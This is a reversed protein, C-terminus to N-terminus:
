RMSLNHCFYKTLKDPFSFELELEVKIRRSWRKDSVGACAHWQIHVSKVNLDAHCILESGRVPTFPIQRQTEESPETVSLQIWVTLCGGM